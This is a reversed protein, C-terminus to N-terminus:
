DSYVMKVLASNDLENRDKKMIPWIPDSDESQYNVNVHLM